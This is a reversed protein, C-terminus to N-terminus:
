IWPYIIQPRDFSLQFVLSCRMPHFTTGPIPFVGSNLISSVLDSASLLLTPSRPFTVWRCLDISWCPRSIIALRHQIVAPFMTPLNLSKVGIVSMSVLVAIESRYRTLNGKVYPRTESNISSSNTHKSAICTVYLLHYTYYYQMYVSVGWM